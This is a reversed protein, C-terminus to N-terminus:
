LRFTVTLISNNATTIEEFVIYLRYEDKQLNGIALGNNLKEARRTDARDEYRRALVNWRCRRPM